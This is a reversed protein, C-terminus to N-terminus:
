ENRNESQETNQGTEEANGPVIAGDLVERIKAVLETAMFPKQLFRAPDFHESQTAHEAYGSIYVIKVQPNTVLLRASLELGGMHPMIVDTVVVAIKAAHQAYLIRAEEGDRATLVHYGYNTLTETAFQRVLSNDEAILITETGRLAVNAPERSRVPLSVAVRRPLLVTFTAGEGPRSTVRLHGGSQEVIGYCTALGLGTGQGLGKTTYFPEFIHKQTEEDMGVGTDTVILRAFEGVPLQDFEDRNAATVSLNKTAITLTGGHPMADRANVALNLLVQQCQGADAHVTWLDASPEIVLEINESLLRHLITETEALTLNLNVTQPLIVQKRAFALLQSILDAGRNAATLINDAYRTLTETESVKEAILEAYGIIATLLNNFDHAIGGALRGVSEMKQAQYLQEQIQRRERRIKAERLERKIAPVLRTLSDKMLYDHAGAKMTEVAVEEGVTGSLVLFPIDRKYAQVLALAAMANYGPLLYDSLIIEWDTESEMADHLQAETQVNRYDPEYGGRQLERLTLALDDPNDELILVRLATM